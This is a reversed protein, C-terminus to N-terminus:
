EKRSPSSHTAARAGYLLDDWDNIAARVAGLAVAEEGLGSLVLRPPKPLYRRLGLELRVLLPIGARSLGGGVIILAPDLVSAVSAVGRALRDVLEDVIRLATVDGETAAQFVIEATVNRPEGGALARLREGGPQRAATAGLRAYATGGAAREFTGLREAGEPRSAGDLHVPMYGIEGAAGSAGRYRKGELLIGAGVGIGVNVYVLDDLGQGSGKWREALLSLQVETNILVRTAIIERVERAIDAQDWGSIQPALTIRLTEPDVIGPTGVSVCVIDEARVSTEDLLSALQQRLLRIAGRAHRLESTSTRRTRIVNGSLDALQALLKNGGIDVGIVYGYDPRFAILKPRPGAQGARPLNGPEVEVVIGATLLDAVIKNVTPKSLGTDRAIAVRSV